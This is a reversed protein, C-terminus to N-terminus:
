TRLKRLSTPASILLFPRGATISRRSRSFRSPVPLGVWDAPMAFLGHLSGRDAVRGDLRPAVVAVRQRAIEHELIRRAREFGALGGEAALRRDLHVQRVHAAHVARPERQQEFPRDGRARRAAGDAVAVQGGARDASAPMLSTDSSSSSDEEPAQDGPPTAAPEQKRFRSM